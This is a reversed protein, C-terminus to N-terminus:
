EDKPTAMRQGAAEFGKWGYAGAISNLLELLIRGDDSNVFMVAGKGNSTGAMYLGLFGKNSADHFFYTEGNRTQVFTGLAAHEDGYPTLHLRAMHQDLVRASRGQVALQMELVYKALDEPTTWLGAAAQEPYIYYKGPVEKGDSGYGTALDHDQDPTPPQDYFSQTMGLPGLVNQAMFQAYPLKSVDMLLQQLVLTGGGSYSSSPGPATQSRVAGTNAPPTGNLIDTISPLASGREYGPFGYISVGATHSLLQASTIPKGESVSDYPFKWTSLYDNIDAYLDVDGQQYLRLIGVANLSKSISGPEFRTRSTMERQEGLDAYGYGKAWVIQFDDIVAVSIGNVGYFRMRDQITFTSDDVGEGHLGHEVQRIREAVENTDNTQAAVPGTLLLLFCLPLSRDLASATTTGNMASPPPYPAPSYAGVTDRLVLGTRAGCCVEAREM